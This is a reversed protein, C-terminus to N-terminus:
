PKKEATYRAAYRDCNEIHREVNSRMLPWWLSQKIRAVTKKVAFHGVGDHLQYLVEQRM